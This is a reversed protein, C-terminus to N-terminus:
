QSFRHNMGIYDRKSVAKARRTPHWHFNDSSSGVHVQARECSILRNAEKTELEVGYCEKFRSIFLSTSFEVDFTNVIFNASQQRKNTM